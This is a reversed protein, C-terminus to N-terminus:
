VDFGLRRLFDDSEQRWWPGEIRGRVAALFDGNGEHAPRLPNVHHFDARNDVAGQFGMRALAQPFEFFGEDAPSGRTNWAWVDIKPFLERASPRVVGLGKGSPRPGLVLITVDARHTWLFANGEVLLNAKKPLWALLEQVGNELGRPETLLVAAGAAGSARLREVEADATLLEPKAVLRYAADGVLPAEHEPVEEGVRIRAAFWGDLQSLLFEALATKGVGPSAGAISIVAM